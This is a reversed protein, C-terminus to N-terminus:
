ADEVRGSAVDGARRALSAAVRTEDLCETIISKISEDIKQATDESYDKHRAIEKGLFIPEEEKGYSVPGLNTSMGWECVMKRALDTARQLDNGAGTTMHGLAIEEAARGGMLVALTNLIHERSYTYRDDIPLQQTIGLAMGRPIISVKHLPDTGPTLKAVIAHGAEHHATNNKEEDSIIMSKREKGMMVKDKAHEFDAMEVKTKSQKAALLAAENVLNALDAGAFGPTMAAVEKLDVDGALQRLRHTASDPLRTEAHEEEAGRVHALHFAADPRLFHDLAALCGVDRQQLMAWTGHRCTRGNLRLALPTRPTLGTLVNRRSWTARQAQPYVRGLRTGEARMRDYEAQVALAQELTIVGQEVLLKLLPDLGPEEAGVGAVALIMVVLVSIWMRTRRM